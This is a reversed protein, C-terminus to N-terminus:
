LTLLQPSRARVFREGTPCDFALHLSLGAIGNRTQQVLNELHIQRQFKESGLSRQRPMSRMCWGSINHISRMDSDSDHRHEAVSCEGIFWPLRFYDQIPEGSMPHEAALEAAPFGCM